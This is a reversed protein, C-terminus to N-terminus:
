IIFIVKYMCSLVRICLINAAIGKWIFPADDHKFQGHVTAINQAFILFINMKRKEKASVKFIAAYQIPM